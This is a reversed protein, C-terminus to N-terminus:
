AKMQVVPFVHAVISGHVVTVFETWALSDIRMILASDSILPM